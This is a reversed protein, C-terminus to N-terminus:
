KKARRQAIERWIERVARVRMAKWESELREVSAREPDSIDRKFRAIKATSDEGKDGKIGRLPNRDDILDVLQKPTTIANPTKGDAAGVEALNALEREVAGVDNNLISQYVRQRARGLKTTDGGPDAGLSYGNREAWRNAIRWVQPSANRFDLGTWARVVDGGATRREMTSRQVDGGGTAGEVTKQVV